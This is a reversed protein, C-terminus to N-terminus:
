LLKQFCAVYILNFIMTQHEKKKKKKKHLILGLSYTKVPKKQKKKWIFCTNLHCEEDDPKTGVQPTWTNHDM